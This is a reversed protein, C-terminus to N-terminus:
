IDGPSLWRFSIVKYGRGFAKNDASTLASPLVEPADNAPQVYDPQRQVVAECWARAQTQTPDTPNVVEGYTRIVFTDSRASLAPGIAQLVDGQLLWGPLGTSTRGQPGPSPPVVPDSNDYTPDVNPLDFIKDAFYAKTSASNYGAAGTVLPKQSSGIHEGAFLVRDGYAGAADGKVQDSGVTQFANLDAADIAAQLPGSLGRGMPVASTALNGSAKEADNITRNFDLSAAVLSRNIFHSLSVFPGRARVRKVIETALTDIETASLRRYGAYADDGTGSSTYSGGTNNNKVPQWLTRPFPVGDAVSDANVKLTNLGGLLAVWADRSTSNINFAGKTLLHAAANRGRVDAAGPTGHISYRPNLPIFAAGSQPIGSFFFGDWLATNLLYAMDFYRSTGHPTGDADAGPSNFFQNDRSSVAERRAVFHNSYSNGVAYASQYGVSAGPHWDDATLGAHQLQGLSLLPPQGSARRPFDFFVGKAAVPSRTLSNFNEAWPAPTLDQTFEGDLSYYGSRSFGAAYSPPTRIRAIDDVGLHAMFAGRLNLDQYPRAYAFLAYHFVEASSSTDVNRWAPPIFQVHASVFVEFEDAGQPLGAKSFSVEGLQQLIPGAGTKRLTITFHAADQLYLAAMSTPQTAPTVFDFTSTATFYNVKGLNPNSADNIALAVPDEAGSAPPAGSAGALQSNGDVSLVLTGGPPISAAPVTFRVADLMSKDSAGKRRMLVFGGYSLSPNTFGHGLDSAGLVLGSPLLPRSGSPKQWTNELVFEYTNAPVTLTINYPNALVFAVNCRIPLAYTGPPIKSLRGLPGIKTKDTFVIMRFQTIIPTVGVETATEPRVPLTATTVDPNTNYFSYLWDWKPAYGLAGGWNPSWIAPIVGQGALDSSDWNGKSLEFYYTLDKRLGGNLTDSLVGSSAITFDHFRARQTEAPLTSDLFTAQPMQVLRGLKVEADADNATPYASFGPILEIGSRSATMLRLRSKAGDANNDAPTNKEPNPDALTYSAKVGEDGVWWAYRGVTATGSSGAGPIISSAVTIDKIPAVVYRDVAAGGGADPNVGATKPGVLLVAKQNASKIELNAYTGSAWGAPSAPDLGAAAWNVSAGPTFPAMAATATGDAASTKVLGDADITFARDENGSVLWNLLVPSPTEEYISKAPTAYTTGARGWVGTWWRTGSQVSATASVPKLGNSTGNVSTTNQAASGNTLRGGDAASALDATATVRQDPGTYKQLQGLALNLAFLANQRAQALQQNNGAVQTEVRTLSALSVLLLVLFSLLTVTILLAFGRRSRAPIVLSSHRIISSSPVPM